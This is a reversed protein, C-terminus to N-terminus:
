GFEFYRNPWDDESFFNRIKPWDYIRGIHGRDFHIMKRSTLSKTTFFKAWATIRRVWCRGVQRRRTKAALCVPLQRAERQKFARSPGLQYGTSELVKIRDSHGGAHDAAFWRVTQMDMLLHHARSKKCGWAVLAGM